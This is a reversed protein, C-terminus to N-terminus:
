RTLPILRSNSDHSLQWALSYKKDQLAGATMVRWIGVHKVHTANQRTALRSDSTLDLRSFGGICLCKLKKVSEWVCGKCLEWRFLSYKIALNWTFKARFLALVHNFLNLRVFLFICLM